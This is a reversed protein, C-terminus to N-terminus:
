LADGEGRYRDGIYRLDVPGNAAAQVGSFGHSLLGQILQWAESSYLQGGHLESKGEAYKVSAGESTRREVIGKDQDAQAKGFSTDALRRLREQAELCQAARLPAPYHDKATGAGTAYANGNDDYVYSRPWATTQTSVYPVGAWAPIAELAAWATALAKEQNPDTAADWVASDLRAEFFTDADTRLQYTNTGITLTLAM